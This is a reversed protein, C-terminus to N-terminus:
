LISINILQNNLKSRDQLWSLNLTKEKGPDLLITNKLFIGDRYCGIDDLLEYIIEYILRMCFKNRLVALKLILTDLHSLDLVNVPNGDKTITFITNWDEGASYFKICNDNDYNWGNLRLRKSRRTDSSKNLLNYRSYHKADYPIREPFHIEYDGVKISKESNQFEKFYKSLSVLCIGDLNDINLIKPYGPKWDLFWLEDRNEPLDLQRLVKVFTEFDHPFTRHLYVDDLIFLQFHRDGIIKKYYAKINRIIEDRVAIIDQKRKICQRCPLYYFDREIWTLPTRPSGCNFCKDSNDNGWLLIKNEIYDQYNLFHSTELHNYIEDVSNGVERLCIPCKM